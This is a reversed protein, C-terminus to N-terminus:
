VCCLTNSNDLLLTVVRSLSFLRHEIAKKMLEPNFAEKNNLMEYVM